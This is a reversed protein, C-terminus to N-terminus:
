HRFDMFIYHISGEVSNDKSAQMILSLFKVFEDDSMEGSGMAFDKHNNKKKNDKVFFDTPLNYPPDCNVIRAKDGQMLNSVIEGDMFSGCILRHGNIEFLDGPKVLIEDDDELYVHAEESSET